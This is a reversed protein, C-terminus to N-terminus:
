VEFSSDDAFRFVMVTVPHGRYSETSLVQWGLRQYFSARDPTFLYLRSLGAAAAQKLIHQVLRSGVGQNRYEPAVYVSALWPTLEPKNDMDHSIIAASGLVGNAKAIYTTPVFGAGLYAQMAQIRQALTQGPNLAQWEQHHWAALQPLYEPYARLDALELSLTHVNIPM